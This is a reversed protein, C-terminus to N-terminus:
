RESRKYRRRETSKLNQKNKTRIGKHVPNPQKNSVRRTQKLSVSDIHIDKYSSNQQMRYIKNSQTKVPMQKLTNKLKKKSNMNSGNIKKLRWTSTKRM